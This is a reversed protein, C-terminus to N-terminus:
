CSLPNSTTSDYKLLVREKRNAELVSTREECVRHKFRKLFGSPVSGRKPKPGLQKLAITNEIDLIPSSM